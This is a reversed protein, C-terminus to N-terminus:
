REETEPRPWEAFVRTARLVSPGREHLVLVDALVVVVRRAFGSVGRVTFDSEPM